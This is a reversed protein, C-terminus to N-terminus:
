GNEPKTAGCVSCRWGMPVRGKVRRSHVRKGIGYRNDQYEHKCDCRMITSRELTDAQKAM